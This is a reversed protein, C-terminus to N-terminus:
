WAVELNDRIEFGPQFFPLDYPRQEFRLSNGSKRLVNAVLWKTNDTAPFDRRFFPGRSEKRQLSSHTILECADIMNIVDIADLWEYNAVLTRNAIAMDPLLDLRIQEIDELASQMGAADKEVGVKDWMIGRLKEKIQVPSVRAGSSNRLRDLRRQEAEMDSESLPEGKLGTFDSEIGDAVVKGDYTALGILGNSHGGVGGAIYLGPVSSRMTATDVDIGGQRYHSTVATEVLQQPFQLGLQRYAKAYTTYQEVEAPDCHDFGAFYGGDYRAKGAHVQKALAKLQVTYPGFALPDDQQQNFFEEGASNVMRASKESGLMPNPYVQMRQWTPPDAIDNTHWWQMEMNVLTAGARWAMAIGDASMERTGTSRKHLRDSYGTALVVARAQVAFTEGTMINLCFVGRIDGDRNRLLATAVTEELLPIGARLIQKRRLDMFPVGSNGQVNAAISRIAGPSTVMNGEDDRRFYLGLEELEPYYVKEIWEGCRRAWKQDILFQNHYKILFEATNRAQTESNGLAQGSIVLNGAFLSAGSKGVLGKCIILPKIGRRHLNLAAYCGAAGGGIIAVDTSLVHM